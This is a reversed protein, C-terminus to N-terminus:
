ASLGAGSTVTRCAPDTAAAADFAAAGPYHDFDFWVALREGTILKKEIVTNALRRLDEGLRAAYAHVAPPLPLRELVTPPLMALREGLDQRRPGVLLSNPKLEAVAITNEVTRTVDHRIRCLTGIASDPTPQEAPASPPHADGGPTAVQHQQSCGILLATAAM